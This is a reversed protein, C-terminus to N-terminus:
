GHPSTHHSESESADRRPSTDRFYHEICLRVMAAREDQRRSWDLERPWSAEAMVRKLVVVAREASEGARRMGDAFSRVRARTLEARELDASSLHDALALELRGSVNAATQETRPSSRESM